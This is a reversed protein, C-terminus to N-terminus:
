SIGFEFNTPFSSRINSNINLAIENYLPASLDKARGGERHIKNSPSFIENSALRTIYVRIFLVLIGGIIIIFVIYSFWFRRDSYSTEKGTPYGQLVTNLENPLVTIQNGQSSRRLKGWYKSAFLVNMDRLLCPDHENGDMGFPWICYNEESVPYHEKDILVCVMHSLLRQCHHFTEYM